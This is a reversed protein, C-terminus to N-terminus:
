LLGDSSSNTDVPINEITLCGMCAQVNIRNKVTELKYVTSLSTNIATLKVPMKTPTSKSSDLSLFFNLPYVYYIFFTM